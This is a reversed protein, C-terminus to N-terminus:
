VNRVQKWLGEYWLQVTSSSENKGKVEFEVRGAVPSVILALMIMLALGLAVGLSLFGRLM